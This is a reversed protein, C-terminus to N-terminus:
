DDIRGFSELLVDPGAGPLRELLVELLLDATQAPFATV